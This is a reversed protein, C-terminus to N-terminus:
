NLCVKEEREITWGCDQVITALRVLDNDTGLQESVLLRKNKRDAKFVALGRMEIHGGDEIAGLVFNMYDQM